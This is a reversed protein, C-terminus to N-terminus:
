RPVAEGLWLASSAEGLSEILFEPGPADVAVAITHIGQSDPIDDGTLVPAPSACEWSFGDSSSAVGVSAPDAFEQGLYYLLWGDDTRRLRPINITRDDFGGCFGPGIVPGPEKTWTVGDPSTAVGVSVQNPNDLSSGSYAMLYGDDTHVVSPFDLSAGDWGGTDRRLTPEPDVTWPGEPNSATARYLDAGRISPAVMGWLYMTWTGDEERIVSGPVPGPPSLDMATAIGALPDGDAVTWVIGDPSAAYVGRPPVDTQEETFAVAWLHYAGDNWTLAAPLIYDAGVHPGDLVPGDSRLEVTMTPGAASPSASASPESGATQVTSGSGAPSGGAPTCAAVTAVAVLALCLSSRVAM